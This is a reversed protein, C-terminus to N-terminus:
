PQRALWEDRTMRWRLDVGTDAPAQPERPAASRGVLHFGLQEPIRRSHVNSLDHHIEVAEIDDVTFALATLAASARRAIGRGLHDAAVWYGIELAGPGLRRHLGCSGVAVGGEFIGMMVEGGAAWNATWGAGLDRREELSLPEKSIWPMYPRLHEINATVLAGVVEADDVTWRRLLLGDHEIRDPLPEM